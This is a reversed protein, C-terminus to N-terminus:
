SQIILMKKNVFDLTNTAGNLAGEWDGIAGKYKGM